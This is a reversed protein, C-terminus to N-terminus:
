NRSTSFPKKNPENRRQNPNPNNSRNGSFFQRNSNIRSDIRAAITQMSLLSQPGPFMELIRHAIQDQLGALFADMKAYENWSSDDSYRNFE